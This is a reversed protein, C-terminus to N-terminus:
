RRRSEAFHTLNRYDKTLADKNRMEPGSGLVTEYLSMGEKLIRDAPVRASQGSFENLLTNLLISEPKREEPEKKGEGRDESRKQNPSPVYESIAKDVSPRLECIRSYAPGSEGGETIKACAEITRELGAYVTKTEEFRREEIAGTESKFDLLSHVITYGILLGLERQNDVYLSLKRFLGHLQRQNKKRPPSM